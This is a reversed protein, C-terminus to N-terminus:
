RELPVPRLRGAVEVSPWDPDFTLNELTGDESLAFTDEVKSGPLSPNWAVIMSALLVEPSDPTAITERAQYGTLGGQHHQRIAEPYGHKHYSEALAHYADALSTGPRSLDLVVSEISRVQRHLKSREPDLTGFHVFRTLNAYLGQGRACFVLMAERGLREHSPTAHRYLPLRREGAALTLAPHLGRAWLAEAGAGALQYGTWDPRAAGLVERMAGSALRGVRRYRELEEPLLVLKCASLAQPLPDEGPHPRDSLVKGADTAEVVFAERRAPEAWPHVHFEFQAPLEEARLREAEIEDTLVWAGKETVLLEAVGSEAALLM